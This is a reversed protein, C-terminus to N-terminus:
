IQSTEGKAEKNFAANYQQWVGGYMINRLIPLDKELPLKEFERAAEGILLMLTGRMAEPQGNMLKIPNYAGRKVDKKYDLAADMLYIFRGLGSGFARLTPAFVDEDNYVFLEGMLAGFANVAEDTQSADGGAEISDLRNLEARVKACQRSWANEIAECPKKLQKLLARSAINKDDKWDDLCKYYALYVNMDACYATFKNTIFPKEKAPHVACRAQGAEEEPEYLSSLLLVLFALDYTLTTRASQGHRSGIERCLGCYAAQYRAKDESEMVATNGVIYGFM